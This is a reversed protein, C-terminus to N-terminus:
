VGIRTWWFCVFFLFCFCASTYVVNYLMEFIEYGCFKCCRGFSNRECPLLATSFREFRPVVAAWDGISKCRPFSTIKARVCFFFMNKITKLGLTKKIEKLQFSAQLVSIMRTSSSPRCNKEVVWHLHMQWPWQAVTVEIRVWASEALLFISSTEM